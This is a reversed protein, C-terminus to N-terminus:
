FCVKRRGKRLRRERRRRREEKEEGRKEREDWEEEMGRKIKRGQRDRKKEERRGQRYLSM